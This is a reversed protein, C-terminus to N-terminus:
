HFQSIQQRHKTTNSIIEKSLINSVTVCSTQLLIYVIETCLKTWTISSTSASETEIRVTIFKTSLNVKSNLKILDFLMFCKSKRPCSATLGLWSQIQAECEPLYLIVAAESIHTHDEWLTQM